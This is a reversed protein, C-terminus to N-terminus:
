RVRSIADKSGIPRSRDADVEVRGSTWGSTRLPVGNRTRRVSPPWTLTCSGVTASRSITPSKVLRRQADDQAFVGCGPRPVRRADRHLRSAGVIRSRGFVASDPPMLRQQVHRLAAAGPGHFAPVEHIRRWQRVGAVCVQTPTEARRQRLPRRCLNGGHLVQRLARAPAAPYALCQPLGPLLVACHGVCPLVAGSHELSKPGASRPYSSM